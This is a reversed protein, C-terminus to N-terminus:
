EDNDQKRQARKLFRDKDILYRTHTGKGIHDKDDWANVDFKVTRGEFFTVIAEARVNGGIPTPSLHEIQVAIGVSSQNPELERSLADVAAAEMLALMSPTAYVPLSGSGVMEATLDSRVITHSIGKLGLEITM